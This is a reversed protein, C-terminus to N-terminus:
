APELRGNALVFTRSHPLRSPDHTAVVATTVKGLLSAVVAVGAEDLGALPEDAIVLEPSTSLARAISVRQRMGQSYSAVLRRDDANLGFRTLVERGRDVADRDDYLGGWFRLNELPTMRAYLSPLHGVIAIRRRIAPDRTTGGLVEVRGETPRLLGALVRLLTTKGAGNPGTVAVHESPEVVLDLGGLVRTQGFRRGLGRVEIAASM